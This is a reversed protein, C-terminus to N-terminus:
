FFIFLVEIIRVKKVERGIAVAVALTIPIIAVTGAKATVRGVISVTSVIEDDSSTAKSISTLKPLGGAGSLLRGAGGGVESLFRGAGGGPESLLRGTGGGAESLFRGAGGGPESLM